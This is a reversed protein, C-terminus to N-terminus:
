RDMSIFKEAACVGIVSIDRIRFNFGLDLEILNNFDKLVSIDTIDNDELHLRKLNTLGALASIDTIDNGALYLDELNTLDKLM